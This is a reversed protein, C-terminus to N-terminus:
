SYRDENAIKGLVDAHCPDCDPCNVNLPKGDRHADCLRCWCALNKGRLSPLAPLLKDRRLESEEGDWNNRWLPGLWVRFAEVCRSAIARDSGQFGADRCDPVTFPNGFRSGRGVYVTNGPMKWGKVRRRQIRHPTV